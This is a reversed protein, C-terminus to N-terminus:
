RFVDLGYKLQLLLHFIAVIVFLYAMGMVGFLEISPYLFLVNFVATSITIKSLVADKSKIILLQSFYGGLSLMITWLLIRLIELTEPVVEGKLLYILKESFLFTFVTVLLLFLWEYLLFEKVKKRFLDMDESYLKALPPFLAQNIPATLGRLANVIKEAIAFYGVTTNNTMIGLILVNFHTYFLVTSRSLFVHWGDRIENFVLPYPVYRFKIKYRKLAVWLGYTGSLVTGAAELAPVLLYDGEEHVVLFVAAVATVKFVVNIITSLRMEEIGQYFWLPFLAEGVIIAFSVYYVMWNASFKEYSFVIINMLVFSAILMYLKAFIVSSFVQSLMDIDNRNISIKRTATLNFGYEVFVRFFVILTMVFALLGFKEIGIIRLLYPILVLPLAYRVAQLITLATINDVIKRHNM